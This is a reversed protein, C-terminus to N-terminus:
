TEAQQKTPRLTKVIVGVKYAVPEAAEHEGNDRLATPIPRGENNPGAKIPGALAPAIRSRCTTAACASFRLGNGCPEHIRAVGKSRGSHARLGSHHFHHECHGADGFRHAIALMGLIIRATVKYDLIIRFSM